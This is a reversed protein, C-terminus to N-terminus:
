PSLEPHIGARNDTAPDRMTLAIRCGIPAHARSITPPSPSSRPLPVSSVDRRGSLGSAVRRRRSPPLPTAQWGGASAPGAPPM